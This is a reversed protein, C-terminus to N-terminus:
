VGPHLSAFKPHIKQESFDSPGPPIIVGSGQLYWNRLKVMLDGDEFIM